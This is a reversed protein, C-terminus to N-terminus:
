KKNILRWEWPAVPNKDKWLGVRDAMASDQLSQYYESDSFHIYHWAFGNKLLEESLDKNKYLVYGVIRGYRDISKESIRVKKNFVQKSTFRKAKFSFPQAYEPCDIDAVRITHQENLSDLVVITDGDKIKIVKGSLQAIVVFPFFVCFFLISFKINYIM